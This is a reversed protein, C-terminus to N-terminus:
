ESLANFVLDTIEDNISVVQTPTGFQYSKHRVSIIITQGAEVDDFRFYGFSNTLATRTAGSGDTLTIRAKSIGGGNFALVQGSVAVMAATPAFFSQWFGGRVEFQGGTSNTGALTQANTGTVNFNVGDSNGGGNSIVSQTVAFQGGTQAAANASLIVFVFAGIFINQYIKM